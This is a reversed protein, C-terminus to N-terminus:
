GPDTEDSPFLPLSAPIKERRRRTQVGAAAAWSRFYKGAGSTTTDSWDVGCGERLCNGIAAAETAPEQELLLLAEQGGPVRELLSRLVSEDVRGSADVLNGLLAVDSVDGREDVLGLMFLNTLAKGRASETLEAKGQGALERVLALAGNPGSQPFTKPRGGGVGGLLMVNSRGGQVRVRQGRLVIVGAYAFWRLFAIAYTRWSSESAEVAPFAEPLVSAFADITTFGGVSATALAALESYARHRRLTAAVRGRVEDERLDAKNLADALAVKQPRPALVGVQRLERAANFVVAASTGLRHAADTVDLAAQEEVLLRLLKSTSTPSLRLIYTEQIAVKGTLLFDRFIDWYVDLSDGVRVVLRRNVLSQLLDAAVLESLDAVLVPARRAILRLAEVERPQLEALDSDFLGHVNLSEHLLTEESTGSTLEDLLHSSLKKLLWPLGQSYERVKRRLDASLKTGVAKSLRSLLTGVERPGFPDVVLVTAVGRIEDRLRYPHKETWAVLDTKWAFGLVVPVHLDNVALALDRFERTLREDQFVNEFQDFFVFLGGRGPRWASRLFTDLCSQFSGFAADPPLSLVGREQGEEAVRRLAAWLYAPTMATRADLVLSHGKRRRILNALVLGLSSKGWGSQANLVLVAGRKRELAGEHVRQFRKLLEKRGIFFKPSAPLQYEFDSTSGKVQVLLPVPARQSSAVEPRHDSLPLVPLKGAFDSSAVMEKVPAPVSAGESSWVLIGGPLRTEHDLQKAIGFLGHETVCLTRDSVLPLGSPNLNLWGQENVLHAVDEARIVRFKRDREEIGAAYEDGDKTLGPIAVFWGHLAQDRLRESAVKGYFQAVASAPLNSSYAKCEALAVEKTLRFRAKIDLEIGQSRVNVNTPTPRECGYAEFVRAMFQEFLHGKTNNRASETVGDALVIVGTTEVLITPSM